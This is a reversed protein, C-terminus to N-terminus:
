NDEEFYDHIDRIYFTKECEFDSFGVYLPVMPVLWSGCEIHLVKYTKCRPCHFILFGDERVVEMQKRCILCLM